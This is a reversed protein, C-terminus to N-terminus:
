VHTNCSLPDGFGYWALRILNRSDKPSKIKPFLTIHKSGQLQVLFQMQDDAHLPTRTHRTAVWLM